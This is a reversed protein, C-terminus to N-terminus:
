LPSANGDRTNHHANSTNRIWNGQEFLGANKEEKGTEEAEWIGKRRTGKRKRKM